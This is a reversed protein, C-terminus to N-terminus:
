VKAEKPLNYAEGFDLESMLDLGGNPKLILFDGVRVNEIKWQEKAVPLIDEDVQTAWKDEVGYPYNPGVPEYRKFSTLFTM